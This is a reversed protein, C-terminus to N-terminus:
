EWAGMEIFNGASDFEFSTYFGAYGGVKAHQQNSEYAGIGCRIRTTAGRVESPEVVYGVGLSDLFASVEALTKM